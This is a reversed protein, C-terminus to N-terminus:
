AYNRRAYDKAELLWTLVTENFKNSCLDPHLNAFYNEYGQIADPVIFSVFCRNILHLKHGSVVDAFRMYSPRMYKPQLIVCYAIISAALSYTAKVVTHPHNIYGAHTAQIFYNEIVKWFLTQSITSTPCLLMAPGAMAGAVAAHWDASENFKWRLYCSVGKYIAAFSGIFLGFRLNRTDTLSKTVVSADHTIRTIKKAVAISSSAAWATLFPGIFGSIVYQACSERHKCTEHKSGDFLTSRICEPILQCFKSYILSGRTTQNVQDVPTMENRRSILINNNNNENIQGDISPTHHRPSRKKAENRGIVLSLAFSVPDSGFGQKKIHQLLISVSLTFIIVSAHPINPLYCKDHLINVLCETGINAVYLALAGRRSKKEIFMSVYAVTWIIPFVQAFYWSGFINKSGCVLAFFMWVHNAIFSSSRVVSISTNILSDKSFKRPLIIQTGIFLPTYLGCCILFVDRTLYYANLTCSPQWVHGLEYCSVHSCRLTAIDVFSTWSEHSIFKSLISM